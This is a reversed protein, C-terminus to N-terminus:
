INLINLTASKGSCSSQLLVIDDLAIDSTFYDGRIGEFIIRYPDLSLINFNVFKWNDGQDGSHSWYKITTNGSQIYVNLTGMDKGYMHYWFTFCFTGDLNVTTSIIESKTGNDIGSGELYIYHGKAKLFLYCYISICLKTKKLVLQM